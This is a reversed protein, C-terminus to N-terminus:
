YYGCADHNCGSKGSAGTGAANNNCASAGSASAGAAYNQCAAAGAASAGSAANYCADGGCAAALCGQNLCVDAPCAAALCGDTPCGLISIAVACVSAGIFFSIGGSVDKLENLEIEDGTFNPLTYTNAHNTEGDVFNLRLDNPLKCGAVSELAARPNERLEKLFEPEEKAKRNVEQYLNELKEQTWEMIDVGKM